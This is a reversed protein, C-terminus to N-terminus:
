AVLLEHAADERIAVVREPLALDMPVEGRSRADDWADAPSAGCGQCVLQMVYGHNTWGTSRDADPLWFNWPIPAQPM